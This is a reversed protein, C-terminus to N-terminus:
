GRMSSRRFAYIVRKVDEIKVYVGNPSVGFNRGNADICVWEPSMKLVYDVYYEVMPAGLEILERGTSSCPLYRCTCELYEITKGKPSRVQLLVDFEGLSM